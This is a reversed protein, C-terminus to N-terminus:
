WTSGNTTAPDLSVLGAAACSLLETEVSLSLKITPLHILLEYIRFRLTPSLEKTLAVKFVRTSVKKLKNVHHMRAITRKFSEQVVLGYKEECHKIHLAMSHSGRFSSFLVSTSLTDLDEQELFGIVKELFKYDDCDAAPPVEFSDDLHLQLDASDSCESDEHPMPSSALVEPLPM